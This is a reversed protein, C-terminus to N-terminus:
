DLSGVRYSVANLGNAVPVLVVNSDTAISPRSYGPCEGLKLQFSSDIKQMQSLTAGDASPESDATQPQSGDADVEAAEPSSASPWDDQESSPAEVPVAADETVSEGSESTAGDSSSVTVATGVSSESDEQIPEDALAAVPITAVVLAAAMLSSLFRRM